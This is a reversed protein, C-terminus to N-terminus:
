PDLPEGPARVVMSSNEYPSCECHGLRDRCDLREKGIQPVLPCVRFPFAIIVPRERERDILYDMVIGGVALSLAPAGVKNTLDAVQHELSLPQSEEFLQLDAPYFYEAPALPVLKADHEAFEEVSQM